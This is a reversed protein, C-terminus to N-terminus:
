GTLALVDRLRNIAPHFGAWRLLGAGVAAELTNGVSIAASVHLPVPTTANFALAGLLVGPLARTGWILVAALAIGSPPWVPAISTSAFGLAFALKAGAVYVAALLLARAVEAGVARANM